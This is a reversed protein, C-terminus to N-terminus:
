LSIPLSLSLPFSQGPNSEFGKLPKARTFPFPGMCPCLFVEPCPPIGDWSRHIISWQQEVSQLGSCSRTMPISLNNWDAYWFTIFPYTHFTPRCHLVSLEFPDILYNKLTLRMFIYHQILIYINNEPRSTRIPRPSYEVRTFIKTPDKFIQM